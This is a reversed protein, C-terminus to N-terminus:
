PKAGSKRRYYWTRRSVGEAEWPREREACGDAWYRALGSAQGRRAQREPSHDTRAHDDRSAFWTAVSYGMWRPERDAKPQRLRDNLRLAEDTVLRIWPAVAISGDARRPRAARDAFRRLARFLAHHRQGVPAAEVRVDAASIASIAPGPEVIGPDALVEAPFPRAARDADDLAELLRAAGDGHLVVYGAAGRVDGRCGRAAWHRNPRPRDDDYYEHWGRRTPLEVYPPDFLTLQRPDGADVDLVTSRISWPVIGLPGVHQRLVDLSPRRHKWGYRRGAWYPRKADDCLM